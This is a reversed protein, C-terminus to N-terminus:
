YVHRHGCSKDSGIKGNARVPALLCPRPPPLPTVPIQTTALNYRMAGSLLFKHTCQHLLDGLREKLLPHNGRKQCPFGIKSILAKEHQYYAPLLICQTEIAPKYSYHDSLTPEAAIHYASRMSGALPVMTFRPLCPGQSGVTESLTILSDASRHINQCM